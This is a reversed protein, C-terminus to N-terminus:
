PSSCKSSKSFGFKTGLMWTLFSVMAESKLELPTLAEATVLVWACGCASVCRCMFQLVLLHSLFKHGYYKLFEPLFGWLWILWLCVHSFHVESDFFHKELGSPPGIVVVMCCTAQGPWSCSSHSEVSCGLAVVLCVYDNTYLSWLVLSYQCCCQQFLCTVSSVHSVTHLPLTNVAIGLLRCWVVPCFWSVPLVLQMKCGWQWPIRSWDWFFLYPSECLRSLLIWSTIWLFDLDAIIVM